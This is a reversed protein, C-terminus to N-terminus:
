QGAIGVHTKYDETLESEFIESNFTRKSAAIDKRKDTWCQPGGCDRKREGINLVVCDRKGQVVNLIVAFKGQGVNLVTEIM